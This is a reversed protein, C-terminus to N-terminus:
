HGRSRRFIIRTILDLLILNAPCIARISSLLPPYLTKTSFDSPFLGSPLVV